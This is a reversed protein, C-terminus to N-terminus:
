ATSYTIAPAQSTELFRQGGGLCWQLVICFGVHYLTNIKMGESTWDYCNKRREQLGLHSSCYKNNIQDLSCVKSVMNM